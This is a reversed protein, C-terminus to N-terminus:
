KLAELVRNLAWYEPNFLGNIISPVSFFCFLMVIGWIAASIAMFVAIGAHNDYYYEEKKELRSHAKYIIYGVAMWIVIMITDTIASFLAQRLLVSWLYESTTGLKSALERLLDTYNSEM